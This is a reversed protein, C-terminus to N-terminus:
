FPLLDTATAPPPEPAALYASLNKALQAKGEKRTTVFPLDTAAAIKEFAAVDLAEPILAMRTQQAWAFADEPKYDRLTQEKVEVGPCPKKDHTTAYIAEALRKAAQESADTDDQLQKLRAVADAMQADYASKAAKVEAVLTDRAQRRQAVEALQQKLIEISPHTM